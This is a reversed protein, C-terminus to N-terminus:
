YNDLRKAHEKFCHECAIIITHKITKCTACYETKQMNTLSHYGFLCKIKQLLKKM